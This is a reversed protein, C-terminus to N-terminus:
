YNEDFALFFLIGSPKKKLATTNVLYYGTFAQYIKDVRSIYVQSLIHGTDTASSTDNM